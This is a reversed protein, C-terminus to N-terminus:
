LKRFTFGHRIQLHGRERRFDLVLEAHDIHEVELGDRVLEDVRVETLSAHGDVFCIAEDGLVASEELQRRYVRILRDNGGLLEIRDPVSVDEVRGLVDLVAGVDEAEHEVVEGVQPGTARLILRLQMRLTLDSTIQVQKVEAFVHVVSHVVVDIARFGHTVHTAAVAAAFPEVGHALSGARPEDTGSRVPSRGGPIRERSPAIGL